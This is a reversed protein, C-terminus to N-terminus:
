AGGPEPLLGQVQLLVARQVPRGGDTRVLVCLGLYLAVLARATQVADVDGAIEKGAKAREITRRFRTEFDDLAAQLVTTIEPTRRTLEAATSILLCPERGDAALAREFVQLLAARPAAAEDLERLGPVRFTVGYHRLAQEFLEYKTAFATYISSRSMGIHDAIMQTSLNHYGHQRLLPIVKDLVSEVTFTKTRPM